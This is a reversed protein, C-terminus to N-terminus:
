KILKDKAVYFEYTFDVDVSKVYNADDYKLDTFIQSKKLNDELALLSERTRANGAISIKLRKAAGPKKETNATEDKNDTSSDSSAVPKVEEDGINISTLKSGSPVTQAIDDMLYSWRMHNKQINDISVIKGSYDRLNKEMQTVEKTNEQDKVAMLQVSAATEEIRLYEACFMFGAMFLLEVVFIGVISQLLLNNIKEWKLNEKDLPSLLNIKIM